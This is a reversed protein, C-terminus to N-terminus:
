DAFILRGRQVPEPQGRLKLSLDPLITEVQGEALRTPSDTEGATEEWIEVDRGIVSSLRIFDVLLSKPGHQLLQEHRKALRELLVPLFIPLTILAGPAAERLSVPPQVFQGPPLEPTAAINVGIGLIAHEILEGKTLTSTIVGSIKKGGLLVDNVWKIKVAQGLVDFQGLADAVALSPVISLGVGLESAPLNPSFLVTLHLNGELAQWPRGRNGHFGDGTFALCAFPTPPAQGSQLMERLGDVQSVPSRGVAMIQRWPALGHLTVLAANPQGGVAQWAQKTAPNWVGASLPKWQNQSAVGALGSLSDPSDTIILPETM